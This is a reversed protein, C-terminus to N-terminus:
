DVVAAADGPCSSSTSRLSSETPRQARGAAIPTTRSATWSRCRTRTAASGSASGNATERGVGAFARGGRRNYWSRIAHAIDEPSWKSDIRYSFGFGLVKVGTGALAARTAALLDLYQDVFGERFRLGTGDDPACPVLM